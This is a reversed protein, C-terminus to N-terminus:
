RLYLFLFATLAPLSQVLIIRWNATIAGVLGMASLFLLVGLVGAIQGTAYFGILLVAAGLNYFGQNLALVRTAQAEEQTTGFLRRVQPTTWLLSELVFFGVHLVAVIVISLTSLGMM